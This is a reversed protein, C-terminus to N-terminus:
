LQVPDCYCSVVDKVTTMKMKSVQWRLSDTLQVHQRALWCGAQRAALRGGVATPIASGAGVEMGGGGEKVPHNVWSYDCDM